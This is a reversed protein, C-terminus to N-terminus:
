INERSNNKYNSTRKGKKLFWTKVVKFLEDFAITLDVMPMFPYSYVPWYDNLRHTEEMSRHEKIDSTKDPPKLEPDKDPSIIKEKM